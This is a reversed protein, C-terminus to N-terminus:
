PSRLCHVIRFRRSFKLLLQGGCVCALFVVVLFFLLGFLCLRSIFSNLSVSCRSVYVWIQELKGHVFMCVTYWCYHLLYLLLQLQLAMPRLRWKDELAMLHQLMVVVVVVVSTTCRETYPLKRIRTHWVISAYEFAHDNKDDARRIETSHTSHTSHAQLLEVAFVRSVTAYQWNQENDNSHPFTATQKTNM